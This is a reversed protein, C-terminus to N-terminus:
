STILAHAAMFTTVVLPFDGLHSVIGGLMRADPGGSSYGQIYLFRGVVWVLGFAAAPLPYVTASTLMMLNVIPLGELTNQHARQTCNFAVDEKSTGSSYLAPYKIGYQKRALVVKIAGFTSALFSAGVVAIAYGFDTSLQLTPM